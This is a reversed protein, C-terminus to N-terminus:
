PSSSILPPDDNEEAVDSGTVQSGSRDGHEAHHKLFPGRSDAANVAVVVCTFMQYRRLVRGVEAKTILM